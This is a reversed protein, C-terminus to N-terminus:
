EPMFSDLWNSITDIDQLNWSYGDMQWGMINSDFLPGFISSFLGADLPDFPNDAFYELNSRTDREVKGSFKM